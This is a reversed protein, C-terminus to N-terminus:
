TSFPAVDIKWICVYVDVALIKGHNVDEISAVSSAPM